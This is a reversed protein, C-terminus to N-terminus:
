AGGNGEVEETIQTLARSLGAQKERILAKDADRPVQIPPGFNLTCRSFPLPLVFRDWSGFEYKWAAGYTMPIVPAGTIRALQLCGAQAAHRPGRSGDAVIVIREDRKLAQILKRSSGLPNKFTSGRVVTYGLMQGLRALVDADQSLSVLINLDRRNRFYYLLFFIRSHWHTLIYRGPLNRFYDENQPNRNDTRLTRCWLHLFAYALGPLIYNFLLRKM